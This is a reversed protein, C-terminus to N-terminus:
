GLAIDRRAIMEATILTIGNDTVRFWKRDEDPDEGVVLGTPIHVGRDIVVNSLRASRHIVSYPLAVVHDLSAYSNSMVGTFLLSNRV